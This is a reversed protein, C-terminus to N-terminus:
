WCDQCYCAEKQKQQQYDEYVQLLIRIEEHGTNLVNTPHYPISLTIM